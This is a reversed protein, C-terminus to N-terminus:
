ARYRIQDPVASDMRQVALYQWRQWRLSTLWGLNEIVWHWMLTQVVAPDDTTARYHRDPAGARHELVAAADHPLVGTHM